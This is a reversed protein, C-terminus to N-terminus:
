RVPSTPLACKWFTEGTGARGGAGAPCPSAGGSGNSRARLLWRRPGSNHVRSGCGSSRRGPGRRAAERNRTRDDAGTCRGHRDPPPANCPSAAPGAPPRARDARVRRTPQCRARRRAGSTASPPARPAKDWRRHRRLPRGTGALGLRVIREQQQGGEGIRVMRERRRPAIEVHIVRGSIEAGSLKPWGVEARVSRGRWM